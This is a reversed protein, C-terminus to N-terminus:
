RRRGGGRMGARSTGAHSSWGSRDMQQIRQTQAAGRERNQWERNLNQIQEPQRTTGSQSESRAAPTNVNSWGGNGYKQWGGDANRKYVNGDKGAYVDGSGTRALVGNGGPGTAGIAAGGGSTRIGGVTGAGTTVHGTAAWQDGRTVV